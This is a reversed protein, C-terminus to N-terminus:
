VQAPTAPADIAREDSGAALWRVSAALAERIPKPAYGLEERARRSDFPTSRLALRVGELNAAPARGTIRDAIWESVVAAALAVPAPIARRPMRRGSVEELLRLFDGLRLNEGGLIYRVGPRGRDGALVIGAAVDRVDVLNLLCDLYAPSRGKLFMDIMAAPPTMNDDGPGVPVTPNVVVVDLGAEAAEFALREALHKSRTYPGPMDELPPPASGDIPGNRRDPRPLLISETSCYVMREIPMTRACALVTRTGETNIRAFDAKDRRWLHAIAALHYVRRVGTMARQVDGEDLISGRVYEADAPLPRPDALDLVRVREGRESLARVLHRGVFGCGGTVLVPADPTVPSTM